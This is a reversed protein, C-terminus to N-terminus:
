QQGPFAIKGYESCTNTANNIWWAVRMRRIVNDDKAQGVTGYRM